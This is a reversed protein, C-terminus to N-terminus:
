IQSTQVSAPDVAENFNVDFQYNGPAPPSFTGGVPPVTTTVQLLTADWRFTGTFELVPDGGSVKSFAGAAVHMTQLGQASVPTSNFHFTIQTNGGGLVFSNAPTGNVTFDAAQVTTPDVPDTLNVVFDTPQTSVVCGM